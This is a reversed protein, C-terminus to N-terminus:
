NCAHCYRKDTMAREVSDVEEIGTRNSIFGNQKTKKKCVTARVSNPRLIFNSHLCASMSTSVLSIFSHVLTLSNFPLSGCQPPYSCLM